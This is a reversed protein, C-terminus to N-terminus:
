YFHSPGEKGTRRAFDYVPNGEEDFRGTSVYHEASIIGHEGVVPKACPGSPEYLSPFYVTHLEGDCAGGKLRVIVFAM